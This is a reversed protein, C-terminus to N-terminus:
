AQPARRIQVGDRRRAYLPDLDRVIGDLTVTGHRVAGEADAAQFHLYVLRAEGAQELPVIEDEVGFRDGLHGAAEGRGCLRMGRTTPMSGPVSLMSRQPTSSPRRKRSVESGVRSASAVGDSM